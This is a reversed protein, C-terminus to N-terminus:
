NINVELKSSDSNPFFSLFRVEDKSALIISKNDFEFAERFGIRRRQSFDVFSIRFNNNLDKKGRFVKIPKANVRLGNTLLKQVYPSSSEFERTLDVSNRDVLIKSRRDKILKPIYIDNEKTRNPSIGLEDGCYPM